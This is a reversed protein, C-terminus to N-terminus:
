VRHPRGDFAYRKQICMPRTLSYEQLYFYYCSLARCM